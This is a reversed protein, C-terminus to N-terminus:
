VGTGRSREFLSDYVSELRAVVAPWSFHELAREKSRLGGSPLSAASALLNSLKLTLDAQDGDRFLWGTDGLAEANPGIDSALIPAGYSMAELLSVSLGEVRSPLVFLACNAYLDALAPQDVWGLFLVDPGASGQLRKLYESAYTAGGAIVLRLGGMHVQQFAEILNHCGKEESLRGVYLIYQRPKLGVRELIGSEGTPLPCVGNPIVDPRAGYRSCLQDAVSNSVAITRDPLKMSAWEAMHLCARAVANWKPREWDRAHVTVVTRLRMIRPLPAFVASGIAHIHVIDYSQWLSHATALFSHVLTEFHKSKPAPLCKVRMGRYEDGVPRFHPRCYVTVEHGRAALRSGAEEYFTEVGSYLHGVGRGGIFAVRYRRGSQRARVAGNVPGPAAARRTEPASTRDLTEQTRLM